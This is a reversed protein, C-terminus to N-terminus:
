PGVFLKVPVQATGGAAATLRPTGTSLVTPVAWSSVFANAADNVAVSAGANSAESEVDNSAESDALRGAAIVGTSSAENDALKGIVSAGANSAESDALRGAAIAGSNHSSSTAFKVVGFLMPSRTFFQAVTAVVPACIADNLGYVIRGILWMTNCVVALATVAVASLM